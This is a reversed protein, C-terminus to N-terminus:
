PVGWERGDKQRVLVGATSPMLDESAKVLASFMPSISPGRIQLGWERTPEDTPEDSFLAGLEVHM